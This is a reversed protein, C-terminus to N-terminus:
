AQQAQVQHQASLHGEEMPKKLAQCKKQPTSTWRIFEQFRSREKTRQLASFVPAASGDV